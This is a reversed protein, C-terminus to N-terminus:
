KENKRNMFNETHRLREEAEKTLELINSIDQKRTSSGSQHKIIFEIM